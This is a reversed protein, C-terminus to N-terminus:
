FLVVLWAVDEKADDVAEVLGHGAHQEKSARALGGGAQGLLETFAGDLFHVPGYDLALDRAAGAGQLVPQALVARGASDVDDCRVGPGCGLGEEGGLPAAAMAPGGPQLYPRLGASGVLEAHLEGVMAMGDEAVSAIARDVGELAGNGQVGAGQREEVRNSVLR